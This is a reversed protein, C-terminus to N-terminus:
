EIEGVFEDLEWLGDKITGDAWTETGTGLPVGNKFNGEYRTDSPFLSSALAKVTVRSGNVKM